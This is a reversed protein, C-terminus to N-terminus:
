GGIVAAPKWRSITFQVSIRGAHRDQAHTCTEVAGKSSTSVGTCRFRGLYPPWVVGFSVGVMGNNDTWDPWASVATGAVGEAVDCAMLRAPEVFRDSDDVRRAISVDTRQAIEIRFPPLM